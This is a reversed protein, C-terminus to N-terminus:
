SSTQNTLVELYTALRAKYRLTSLDPATGHPMSRVSSSPQRRSWCACRPSSTRSMASPRSCRSAISRLPQERQRHRLGGAGQATGRRVSDRQRIPRREVGHQRLQLHPQRALQGPRGGRGAYHQPLIRGQCRRDARQRRRCSAGRRRHRSPAAVVGFARGNSYRASRGAFHSSPSTSRPQLSASSFRSRTNTSRASFASISSSARAGRGTAGPGRGCREGYQSRGQPSGAYAAVGAHIRRHHLAAVAGSSRPRRLQLLHRRAARAPQAAHPWTPPPPRRVPRPPSSRAASRSGV